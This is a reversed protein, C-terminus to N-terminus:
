KSSNCAVHEGRRLSGALPGDTSVSALFVLLGRLSLLISAIMGVEPSLFFRRIECGGDNTVPSTSAVWGTWSQRFFKFYRTM